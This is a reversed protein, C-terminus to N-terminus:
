PRSWILTRKSGPVPGDERWRIWVTQHPHWSIYQPSPGDYVPYRLSLWGSRVSHEGPAVLLFDGDMALPWIPMGRNLIGESPGGPERYCPLAQNGVRFKSDYGDGGDPVGETVAEERASLIRELLNSEVDDLYLGTLNSPVTVWGWRKGVQDYVLVEGGSFGYGAIDANIGGLGEPHDMFPCDDLDEGSVEAETRGEFRARVPMIRFDLINLGFACARPDPPLTSKLWARVLPEGKEQEQFNQLPPIWPGRLNVTILPGPVPRDGRDRVSATAVLLLFAAFLGGFLRLIM